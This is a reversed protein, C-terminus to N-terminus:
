RLDRFQQDSSRLLMSVGCLDGENDSNGDGAADGGERGREFPLGGEPGDYVVEPGTEADCGTVMTEPCVLGVIGGEREADEEGENTATGNLTGDAPPAAVVAGVVAVGVGVLVGVGNALTEEVAM